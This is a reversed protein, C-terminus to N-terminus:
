PWSHMRVGKSRLFAFNRYTDALVAQAHETHWYPWMAKTNVHHEYFLEDILAQLGPDKMVQEILSNEIDTADLDLKVVVYDNPRAGMGRLMRWPNWKGDPDKDVGQNYYIYHPLIDTPVTRYIESPDYKDNEYSVIWDFTLDHRRNRDVFWLAGVNSTDGKWASYFAAGIDVLINQRARTHRRGSTDLASPEFGGIRWSKPDEPTDSWPAASAILFHRKSQEANEGVSFTYYVDYPGGQPRPCITLPDRLIGILPEILQTRQQGTKRQNPGCVQAYVMRSFLAISEPPIPKSRLMADRTARIFRVSRDTESPTALVECERDRRVGSIEGQSWESEWPSPEYRQFVWACQDPALRPEVRKCAPLGFLISATVWSAVALCRWGSWKSSGREFM